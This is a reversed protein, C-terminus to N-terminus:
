LYVDRLDRWRQLREPQRGPRLEVDRNGMPLTIKWLRSQNDYAYETLQEKADLIKWLRSLDDYAYVTEQGRPRREKWLKGDPYYDFETRQNEADILAILNDWRDYEFQTSGSPTMWRCGGAWGTTTTPPRGPTPAPRLKWGALADYTYTTSVGHMADTGFTYIEASVRGEADYQFAKTFIPYTITLLTGHQQERQRLFLHFLRVNRHDSRM